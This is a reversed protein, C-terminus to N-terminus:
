AFMAARQYIPELKGFRADSQPRREGPGRMCHDINGVPKEGIETM